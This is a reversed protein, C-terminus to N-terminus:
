GQLNLDNGIVISFNAENQEISKSMELKIQGENLLYVLPYLITTLTVMLADVIFETLKELLNFLFPVTKIGM